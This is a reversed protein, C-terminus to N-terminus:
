CANKTETYNSVKKVATYTKIYVSSM